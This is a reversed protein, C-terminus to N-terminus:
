RLELGLRLALACRGIKISLGLREDAGNERAGATVLPKATQFEGTTVRVGKKGCAWVDSGGTEWRSGSKGSSRACIKTRCVGGIVLAAKHCESSRYVVGGWGVKVRAQGLGCGAGFAFDRKIGGEATKNQKWREEVRGVKLLVSRSGGCHRGDNPRERGALDLHTKFERLLGLLLRGHLSAVCRLRHSASGISEPRM